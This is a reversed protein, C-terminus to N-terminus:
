RRHALELLLLGLGVGTVFGSGLRGPLRGFDVPRGASLASGAAKWERNAALDLWAGFGLLLGGGLRRVGHVPLRPVVLLLLAGAGVIAFAAETFLRRRRDSEVQAALAALDPPWPERAM